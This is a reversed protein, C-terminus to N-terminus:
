LESKNKELVTLGTECGAVYPPTMEGDRLIGAIYLPFGIIITGLHFKDGVLLKSNVSDTVEFGSDGLYKMTVLRNPHWGVTISDGMALDQPNILWAKIFKSQFDDSKRLAERFDTFNRYGIYRSLIDLTSARPTPKMTMYGWIRKLTSCSLMEGIEHEIIVSLSEFDTSTAIRRGYRKEVESLLYSLEPIQKNAM